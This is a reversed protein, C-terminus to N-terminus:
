HVSVQELLRPFDPFSSNIAEANEITTDGTAILSAIALTMAIRHDGHPSTVTTGTLPTPGTIIMGDPREEINAGLRRLQESIVAIRDSEKVRMEQADRIITQGPAQTALLALVPLEDILRPILAGGIETPKLEGGCVTIDALPEGGSTRENTLTITAGMAELVDLIGTRTPNVGVDRVTIEWGPRIAAAVLFFAASSIDGAVYVDNSTLGESREVSIRAGDRKVTVGFGELMRETHDRSPTPEIVTTTGGARLGALLVASKLQASAVPLAYEIGNLDGGQMDVPPTGKEGQGAFEAGMQRLPVGVREMPRKNLSADGKLQVPWPCGALVGMLLRMTTGSNGCDLPESPAQLGNFGVGQVVVTGEDPADITAGLQRLCAITAATDQARLFNEIRTTGTALAGFIAARHSISKDGPVAIAGSIKQVPSLTLNM